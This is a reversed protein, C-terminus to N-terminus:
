AGLATHWAGHRPEDETKVLAGCGLCSMLSQGAMNAGSFQFGPFRYEEREGHQDDEVAFLALQEERM